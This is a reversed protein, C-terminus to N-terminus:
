SASELVEIGWAVSAKLAKHLANKGSLQHETLLTKHPLQKLLLDTLLSIHANFAIQQSILANLLRVLHPTSLELSRNGDCFLRCLALTEGNLTLRIQDPPCAQLLRILLANDLSQFCQRAHFRLLQDLNNQQAQRLKSGNDSSRLTKLVTLNFEATAKDRHFGTLVPYFHNKQWFLLLPDSAGFSSGLYDIQQDSAWRALENLMAQGVGCRRHLPNVAIRIIRFYQFNLYQSQGLGLALQQALMHGQVRRQGKIVGQQLATETLKGELNGCLAGLLNEARASGAFALIVRQEPADLLTMFDDPTTQYHAEVLLSFVCNLLEPQKTLAEGSYFRVQIDTPDTLSPLVKVPLAKLQLTQWWFKELCDDNQWRFPSTLQTFNSGPRHQKLWPSFRIEFGRGSGEYGHITTSFVIRPYRHTLKKLLEVPIAAAEDVIVLDMEHQNLMLDDVAVFQLQPLVAENHQRAHKFLTEVASKQPATILVRCQREEILEAAAIGLAATKGRGRDATIVLPRKRHGTVVKKIGAIVQRQQRAKDELHIQAQDLVANSGQLGDPTRVITDATCRIQNILHHIFQSTHMNALQAYSIRHKLYPDNYEPWFKFDPCLLVMLGNQKLTGSLAALANARTGQWANYILWDFEQGLYQRFQQNTTQQDAWPMSSQVGCTIIKLESPLTETLHTLIKDTEQLCWREDGSIVMLQRHHVAQFRSNILDKLTEDM